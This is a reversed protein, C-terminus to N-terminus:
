GNLFSPVCFNFRQLSRSGAQADLLATHTAQRQKENDGDVTGLYGGTERYLYAITKKGPGDVFRELDMNLAHLALEFHLLDYKLDEVAWDFYRVARTPYLMTINTPRIKAYDLNVFHTVLLSSARKFRSFGKELSRRADRIERLIDMLRRWEVYGKYMVSAVKASNKIAVLNEVRKAAEYIYPKDRQSYIWKMAMDLGESVAIYYAIKAMAEAKDDFTSPDREELNKLDTHAERSALDYNDSSPTKTSGGLVLEKTEDSWDIADWNYHIRNEIHISGIKVPDGLKNTFFLDYDWYVYFKQYDRSIWTDDDMKVKIPKGTKSQTIFTRATKYELFKDRSNLAKWNEMFYLSDDLTFTVDLTGFNKTFTLAEDHYSDDLGFFALIGIRGGSIVTNFFDGLDKIVPRADDSVDRDVVEEFVWWGGDFGRGTFTTAPDLPDFFDSVSPNLRGGTKDYYAPTEPMTSTSLAETEITLDPNISKYAADQGLKSALYDSYDVRGKPDPIIPEDALEAAACTAYLSYYTHSDPCMKLSPPNQNEINNPSIPIWNGKEDVIPENFDNGSFTMDSCKCEDHWEVSDKNKLVEDETFIKAGYRMEPSALESEELPAMEAKSFYLHDETSFGYKKAEAGDTFRGYNAYVTNKKGFPKLIAPYYNLGIQVFGAQVEGWGNEFLTKEIDDLLDKTDFSGYSARSPTYVPDTTGGLTFSGPYSFFTLGPIAPLPAASRSSFFTQLAPLDKYDIPFASTISSIVGDKLRSPSPSGGFPVMTYWRNLILITWGRATISTTSAEETCAEGYSPGGSSYGIFSSKTGDVYSIFSPSLYINETLPIIPDYLFRGIRSYFAPMIPCTRAVVASPLIESSYNFDSICKCESFVSIPFLALFLGVGFIKVPM